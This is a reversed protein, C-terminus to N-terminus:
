HGTGKAEHKAEKKAAENNLVILADVAVGTKTNIL